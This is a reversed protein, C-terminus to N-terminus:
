RAEMVGFAPRGGLAVFFGYTALAGILLLVVLSQGFYWANTDLTLPLWTLFDFVVFMAVHAVLGVRLLVTLGVITLVTAVVVDSTSTGLAFIPVILVVLVLSAIWTTRLILRFLVLVAVGFLSSVIANLFAGLLSSGFAWPSRLAELASLLYLPPTEHDAVELQILTLAAAVVGVCSGLLVHRGVLPDLIRGTLVRSWSVLMQPWWRRGYPEFSIYALWSFAGWFLSWGSVGLLWSLEHAASPVHHALLMPSLLSGCGVFVSLRWAGSRDGEGARLNRRALVCCLGFGAWIIIWYLLEGAEFGGTRRSWVTRPTATVTSPTGDAELTMMRMRTPDHAPDDATVVRFLNAPILPTSSQRYTFRIRDDGDAVWWWFARDTPRAAAAQSTEGLIQEAREALVEPPKPLQSPAVTFGNARAIAATGGLIAALLLWGVAPALAGATPAAAIMAPSPIGGETLVLSDANPLAAAVAHASHPRKSPDSAMCAQVTTSVRPDVGAPLIEDLVRGLSYVDSRVTVPGGALQEPSMYAPTGAIERVDDAVTVALGFDMIRIQGRGDVMINSPKLDRHLVGRAHAAGVGACLQRAMELAKPMPMQGIRRLLSALTEGDVYEMSLYHWGEAYGIDYVRCVHPHAIGRALRVEDTLRQLGDHRRAMAESMLKLAVSQGLRLDDARYVEGMAGRGLLSVIRYRSAFIRGPAFRADDL